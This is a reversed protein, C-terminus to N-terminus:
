NPIGTRERKREECYLYGVRLRNSSRVESLEKKEFTTRREVGKRGAEGGLGLGRLM